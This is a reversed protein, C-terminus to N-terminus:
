KETKKNPLERLYEKGDITWRISLKDPRKSQGTYHPDIDVFVRKGAKINKAWGDEISRYVGRNFNSDQAFHNFWDHPGNFRVGIFHGGDDRPKRDTGGAQSQASRSRKSAQEIRLNGSVRETRSPANAEMSVDFNYGNKVIRRLPPKKTAPPRAQPAVNTVVKRAITVQRATAPETSPRPDKRNQVESPGSWSGTAGGGGFDGGGPRFPKRRVVPM